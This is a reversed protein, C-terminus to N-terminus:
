KYFKYEVLFMISTCMVTYFLTGNSLVHRLLCCFVVSCPLALQQSLPIPITHTLGLPLFWSNCVILSWWTSVANCPSQCSQLCVVANCPSQCSQLCVVANCPSQCSQLCVVANCPSQCSQLCVVSHFVGSCLLWRPRGDGCRVSVLLNRVTVDDAAVPRPCTM